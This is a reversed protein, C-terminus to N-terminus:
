VRVNLGRIVELCREVLIENTIDTIINESIGMPCRRAVIKRLESKWEDSTRPKM